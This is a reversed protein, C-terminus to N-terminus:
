QLCLIFAFKGIWLGSLDRLLKRVQAGQHLIPGNLRLFVSSQVCFSLRFRLLSLLRTVRDVSFTEFGGTAQKLAEYGQEFVPYEVFGIGKPLVLFESELCSFVVSVFSDPNEKIISFPVEFPFKPM